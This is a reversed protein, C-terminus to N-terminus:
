PLYWLSLCLVPQWRDSTSLYLESVDAQGIIWPNKGNGWEGELEMTKFAEAKSHTETQGLIKLIKKEEGMEWTRNSLSPVSTPTLSTEEAEGIAEPNKELCM